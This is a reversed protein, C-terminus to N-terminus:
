RITSFELRSYQHVTSTNLQRRVRQDLTLTSDYNWWESIYGWPHGCRSNMTRRRPRMGTTKSQVRIQGASFEMERDVESTRDIAVSFRSKMLYQGRKSIIFQKTQQIRPVDVLSDLCVITACHVGVILNGDISM